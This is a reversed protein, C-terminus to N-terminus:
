GMKPHIAICKPEEANSIIVKRSGGDLKSVEIMKSGKDSWYITNSIWDVALGDPQSLNSIVDWTHNLLTM